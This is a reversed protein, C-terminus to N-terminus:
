THILMGPGNIEILQAYNAKSFIDAYIESNVHNIEDPILGYITASSQALVIDYTRYFESQVVFVGYGPSVPPVTFFYCDDNSKFKLFTKQRIRNHAQTILTFFYCYCCFTWQMNRRM